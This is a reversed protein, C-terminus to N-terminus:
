VERTVGSAEALGFTERRAAEYAGALILAHIEDIRERAEPWITQRARAVLISPHLSRDVSEEPLTLAEHLKEGPRMGIVRVEIDRGPELGRLRILDHALEMISVPEGMDLVLVEGGSGILAAQVILQCAEPITMFFRTM